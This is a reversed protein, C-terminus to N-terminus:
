SEKQRTGIGGRQMWRMNAVRQTDSKEEGDKEVREKETESECERESKRDSEIKRESEREIM